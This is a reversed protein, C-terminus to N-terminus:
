LKKDKKSITFDLNDLNSDPVGLVVARNFTTDTELGYPLEKNFCISCYFTEKNELDSLELYRDNSIFNCRAHVWNDCIDCCVAKSNERVNTDCINCYFKQKREKVTGM